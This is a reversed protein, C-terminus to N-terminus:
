NRLNRLAVVSQVVIRRFRDSADSVTVTRDGLTYTRTVGAAADPNVTDPQLSRMLLFLQAAQGNRTLHLDQVGEVLDETVLTKTAGVVNLRVRSLTPVTLNRVYYLSWQYEWAEAGALSAMGPPVGIDISFLVSRGPTSMVFAGNAPLGDIAGDGNTDALPRPRVSKVVFATTGAVADALCGTFSAVPAIVLPENTEFVAATAPATCAGTVTAVFDPDLEVPTGPPAGFFGAHRLERALLQLAFRGNEGMSATNDTERQGRSVLLFIAVVAGTLFLGIVLSIMLEVLTLGASRAARVSRGGAGPGQGRTRAALPFRRGARPGRVQMSCRGNM